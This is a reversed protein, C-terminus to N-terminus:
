GCHFWREVLERIREEDGAIEQRLAADHFGELRTIIGDLLRPPFVGTANTSRVSSRWVGHRSRVRPRLQSLRALVEKHREDFINVDVYRERAYRVGAEMEFGHRAVALGALLLYLDASGDPCRFEVTQKLETNVEAPEESPNADCVM